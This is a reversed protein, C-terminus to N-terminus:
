SIEVKGYRGDNGSNLEAKMAKERENLEQQGETKDEDYLEKEIRMLYSTTGRGVGKSVTTGVSTATDAKSEGVTVDHDVHEWGRANLNSVRSNDDNVWRYVYGDEKNHVTLIDRGDGVSKRSKRKEALIKERETKNRRM